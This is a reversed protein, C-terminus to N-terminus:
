QNESMVEFFAKLQIRLFLWLHFSTLHNELLAVPDNTKYSSLFFYKLRPTLSHKRFLEMKIKKLLFDGMSLMQIYTKIICRKKKKKGLVSDFNELTKKALAAESYLFAM